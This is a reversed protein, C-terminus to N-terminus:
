CMSRSFAYSITLRHVNNHVKDECKEKVSYQENKLNYNQKNKSFIADNNFIGKKSSSTALLEKGRLTHMIIPVFSEQIFNTM